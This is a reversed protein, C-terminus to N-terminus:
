FDGGENDANYPDANARRKSREVEIEQKKAQVNEVGLREIAGKMSEFGASTELMLLEVLEKRNDPLPLVFRMENDYNDGIAQVVKKDYAFVPANLRAQL